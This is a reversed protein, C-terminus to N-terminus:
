ISRKREVIISLLESSFKKIRNLDISQLNRELPTIENLVLQYNKSSHPIERFLQSLQTAITFLLTFYSKLDNCTIPERKELEKDFMQYLMKTDIESRLFFYYPSSIIPNNKDFKSNNFYTRLESQFIEWFFKKKQALEKRSINPITKCYWEFLPLELVISTCSSNVYEFSSAGNEYFGLEKHDSLELLYKYETKAYPLSYVGTAYSTIYPIPCHKNPSLKNSIILKSINGAETKIDKSIFLYTDSVFGNHLSVLLDPNTEDIVKRVINTEPLTNKFEYGDYKLPFAWEVQKGPSPRYWSNIVNVVSINNKTWWQQNILAGDIDWVPIIIWYNSNDRKVSKKAIKLIEYFVIECLPENPHPFGLFLASFPMNQIEIAIINNGAYSAGLNKRNIPIKLEACLEFLDNIFNNIELFM